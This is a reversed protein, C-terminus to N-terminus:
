GSHHSHKEEVNRNSRLPFAHDAEAELEPHESGLGRCPCISCYPGWSLIRGLNCFTSLRFTTVVLIYSHGRILRTIFDILNGNYHNHLMKSILDGHATPKGGQLRYLNM